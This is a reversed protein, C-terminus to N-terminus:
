PGPIMVPSIRTGCRLNLFGSIHHSLRAGKLRWDEWRLRFPRGCRQGTLLLRPLRRSERLGIFGIGVAKPPVKAMAPRIPPEPEDVAWPRIEDTRIRGRLIGRESLYDM